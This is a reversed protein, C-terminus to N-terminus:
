NGSCKSPTLGAGIAAGPAAGSAGAVVADTVGAPNALTGVFESAQVTGEGVRAIQALRFAAMAEGIGDEANFVAVTWYAVGTLTGV